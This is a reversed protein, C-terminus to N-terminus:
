ACLMWKELSTSPLLEDEICLIDEIHATADINTVTDAINDEIVDLMINEGFDDLTAERIEFVIAEVEGGEVRAAVVTHLVDCSDYESATETDKICVSFLGRPACTHVKHNTHMLQERPTALAVQVHEACCMHREHADGRDLAKDGEEVLVHRDLEFM